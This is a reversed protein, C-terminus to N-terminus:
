TELLRDRVFHLRRELRGIANAGDSGTVAAFEPGNIWKSVDPVITALEPREHLALFSGVAIAEFRWHPTAKGSSTRRFGHPFARAVFTMTDGFRAKYRAALKPDASFEENMREAYAFLFPAVRDRYGELGDGYAFFRTVLEERDRLKSRTESVPALRGFSPDAALSIM